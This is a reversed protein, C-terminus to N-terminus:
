SGPYLDQLSDYGDRRECRDCLIKREAFVEKGCRPCWSRPIRGQVDGQPYQGVWIPRRRGPLLYVINQCM